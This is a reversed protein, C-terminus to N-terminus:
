QPPVLWDDSDNEEESTEEISTILPHVPERNRYFNRNGLLGEDAERCALCLKGVNSTNGTPQSIVNTGSHRCEIVFNCLILLSLFKM